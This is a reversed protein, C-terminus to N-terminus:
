KDEQPTNPTLREALWPILTNTPISYREGGLHIAPFEDARIMALVRRTTRQALLGALESTTMATGYPALMEKAQELRSPDPSTM